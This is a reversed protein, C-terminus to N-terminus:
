AFGPLGRVLAWMQARAAPTLSFQAFTLVGHFLGDFRHFAVPVGAARLTDAYEEASDCLADLEAPAIVAPPLGQHSSARTPDVLSSDRGAPAYNNWYWELSAVDNYYGKAYETYSATGSGEGLVPYILIQGAIRPGGRDRAAISVTASLNGGASDGAVAICSPDGGFEGISAAAWEVAAYMDEMAAPAPNEPALRYDVSVVVTETNHAMARCFEDHTDLNCFVFGGGHAFVIVPLAGTREQRHPVYVRLALPGGPGDISLDTLSALDPETVRPGRRAEIAARAEAGTMQSVTPFGEDLRALMEEVDPHLDTRRTGM